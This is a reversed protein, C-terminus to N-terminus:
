FNVLSTADATPTNTANGIGQGSVYAGLYTWSCSGDTIGGGTGTPGGSSASVCTSANQVYVSSGNLRVVGVTYPTSAAWALPGVPGRIKGLHTSSWGYAGNFVSTTSNADITGGNVFFGSGGAHDSTSGYAVVAGDLEGEYNTGVGYAGFYAWNCSGDANTATTGSPATAGSTCTPVTEVYLKGSAVVWDWAAHSASAAWAVGSYSGHSGTADISSRVYAHYAYQGNGGSSTYQGWMSGGNLSGFGAVANNSAFSNTVVMSGGAEALFGHGLGSNIDGAYSAHCYRCEITGGDFLPVALRVGISRTAYEDRSPTAGSPGIDAAIGITPYREARVAAREISRQRLLAEGAAVEPRQLLALAVAADSAM